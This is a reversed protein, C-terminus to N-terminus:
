SSLTGTLCLMRREATTISVMLPACGSGIRNWWVGYGASKNIAVRQPVAWFGDFELGAFERGKRCLLRGGPAAGGRLNVKRTCESRGTLELVNVLVWM